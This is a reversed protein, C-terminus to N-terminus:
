NMADTWVTGALICGGVAEWCHLFYSFLFRLNIMAFLELSHFMSSHICIVFTNEREIEFLLQGYKVSHSHPLCLANEGLTHSKVWCFPRTVTM